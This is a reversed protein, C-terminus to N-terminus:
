DPPAKSNSDDGPGRAKKPPVVAASLRLEGVNALRMEQLPELTVVARPREKDVQVSGHWERVQRDDQYALGNLADQITKQLNDGDRARADAVYFMVSLVVPGTLPRVGATMACLKVKRQYLRTKEPTFHQGGRGRGARQWPVPPGPIEFRYRM